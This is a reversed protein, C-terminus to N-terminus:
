YAWYTKRQTRRWDSCCGGERVDTNFYVDRSGDRSKSTSIMLLPPIHIKSRSKGRWWERHALNYKTHQTGNAFANDSEPTKAPSQPRTSTCLPANQCPGSWGALPWSQWVLYSIPCREELKSVLCKPLTFVSISNSSNYALPLNRHYAHLM